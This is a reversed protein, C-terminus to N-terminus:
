AEVPLCLLSCLYAIAPQPYFLTLQADRQKFNEVFEEAKEQGGKLQL